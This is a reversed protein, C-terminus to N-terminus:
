MAPVRLRMSRARDQALVGVNVNVEDIVEASDHSIASLEEGSPLPSSALTTALEAVPYPCLLNIASCTRKFVRVIM